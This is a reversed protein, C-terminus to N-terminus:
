SWIILRLSSVHPTGRIYLGYNAYSHGGSRAQVKYGYDVACRVVDAVQESTQPYTLVTPTVPFNLNYVPSRSGFMLDGKFAILASDNGVAALLCSHGAISHANGM